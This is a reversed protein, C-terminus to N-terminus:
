SRPKGTRDAPGVGRVGSSSHVNEIGPATSSAGEHVHSSNVASAPPPHSRRRRRGHARVRRRSTAITVRAAATRSRWRYTTFSRRDTTTLAAPGAMRDLMGAVAMRLLLAVRLEESRKGCRHPLQAFLAIQALAIESREGTQLHATEVHSRFTLV